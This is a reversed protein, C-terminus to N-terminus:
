QGIGGAGTPSFTLSVFIGQHSCCVMFGSTGVRATMNDCVQKALGFDAVKLTSTESSWFMNEPKLDRHAINKASLVELIAICQDVIEVCWDYYEYTWEANERLRQKEMFTTHMDEGCLEMVIGVRVRDDDPDVDCVFIGLLKVVSNSQAAQLESWCKIPKFFNHILRKKRHDEFKCAVMQGHVGSKLAVGFGGYGLVKTFHFEDLKWLTGARARDLDTTPEEFPVSLADRVPPGYRGDNLETSSELIDRFKRNRVFGDYDFVPLPRNAKQDSVQGDINSELRWLPAVLKCIARVMQNETMAGKFKFLKGRPYYTNFSHIWGTVCDRTVGLLEELIFATASETEQSKLIELEKLFATSRKMRNMQIDKHGDQILNAIDKAQDPISRKTAVAFIAELLYLTLAALNEEEGDCVKLLIMIFEPLMNDPPSNPAKSTAEDLVDLMDKEVSSLEARGAQQLSGQKLSLLQGLMNQDICHQKHVKLCKNRAGKVFWGEKATIRKVISVTINPLGFTRLRPADTM